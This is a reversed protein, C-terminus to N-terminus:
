RNSLNQLIEYDKHILDIASKIPTYEFEFANKSKSNDYATKADIKRITNRTIQMDLPKFISTVKQAIWVLYLMFKTAKFRPKKRKFKEAITDMIDRFSLNEAVLIYRENKVESQMFKMMFDVVDKVYVFGTQKNVYFKGNSLVKNFIQGSGSDFFGVGLVVGPNVIAVDLGEQSARWVEMEAGYKSISYISSYRESERPAEEDVRNTNAYYGLAATSSVHCFKGVGNALALNVMNATGEINVKRMMKSHSPSNVVWAACHYVKKIGVFAKELQPIDLIDAKFWNIDKIRKKGKESCFTNLLKITYAKKAESRYLARINEDNNKCLNILLHTGLFGTAGSVLIM